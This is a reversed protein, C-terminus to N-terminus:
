KCRRGSEKHNSCMCTYMIKKSLHRYILKVGGIMKVSEVENFKNRVTGIGGGVRFEFTQQWLGGFVM